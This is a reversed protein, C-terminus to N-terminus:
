SRNAELLISYVGDENIAEKVLYAKNDLRVAYGMPPLAGFDRAKAYILTTKVNVGDMDSKMKKSREIMENNDVIVPISKGNVTHTAAFEDTNMFVTGADERVAEKFTM